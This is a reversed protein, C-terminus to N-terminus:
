DVEKVPKIDIIFKSHKLYTIEHHRYDYAKSIQDLIPSVRGKMRLRYIQCERTRVTYNKSLYSNIRQLLFFAFRDYSKDHAIERIQVIRKGCNKTLIDIIIMILMVIWRIDMYITYVVIALSIIRILANAEGSFLAWYVFLTIIIVHIFLPKIINIIYSVARRYGFKQEMKYKEAKMLIM